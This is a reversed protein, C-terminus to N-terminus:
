VRSHCVGIEVLNDVLGSRSAEVPLIVTLFKRLRSPLNQCTLHLQLQGEKRGTTESDGSCNLFFFHVCSVVCTM